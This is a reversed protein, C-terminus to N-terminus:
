RAAAADLARLLGEVAAGMDRARSVASVVAAGCAGARAVEAINLMTVGGVAVVPALGAECMRALGDPGIPEGADAKTATAYVPGIGLYDAGDSVAQHAEGPSEPSYGIIAKPGLVKRAMEVTLDNFGLHVGCGLAAAVDVRDNVFFLAGHTLCRVQIDRAAEVFARDSITKDRLQIAMCGAQLAAEAIAAHDRGLESVRETIVVLRLKKPWDPLRGTETMDGGALGLRDDGGGARRM